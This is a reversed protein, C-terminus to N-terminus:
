REFDIATMSHAPFTMKLKAGQAPIEVNAEVPKKYDMEDPAEASTWSKATKAAFGKLDIACDFAKDFSKNFVILHLKKGDKSLTSNATIAKYAPSSAPSWEEIKYNRIELTGSLPSAINPARFVLDVSKCDTRPLFSVSHSKWDRDM